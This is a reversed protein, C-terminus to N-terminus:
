SSETPALRLAGFAGSARLQEMFPGDYAETPNARVMADVVHADDGVLIRWDGARVGDLIVAAAEAASLPAQELFAQAQALVLARIDEDSAGSADIGRAALRERVEAVQEPRLDKPDRGHALSSNFVISTGVHGPMVVSAKVHPANVRLDVVLAETFGKVAFKAASYATHPTEPGLCAWFGNVSSTNVIHGEPAAVLMPLFTRTGHYVGGWCVAFTRDWEERADRIMSGGGGIGANNFLLHISDTAHADRVHDGFARMAAEDSVDAVFTSVVTGAPAGDECRAATEALAEASVDCTVVHCGEHALLHCLERGMGHGGGTVVAIKGEFREMQTGKDRGDTRRWCLVGARWPTLGSLTGTATLHDGALQGRCGRDLAATPGHMGRGGELV